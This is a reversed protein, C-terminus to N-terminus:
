SSNTSTNQAEKLAQKFREVMETGFTGAEKAYTGFEWPILEALYHDIGGRAKRFASEGTQWSYLPAQNLPIKTLEGRARRGKRPDHFARPEGRKDRKRHQEAFELAGEWGLKEFLRWAALDKLRDKSEKETGAETKPKYKDLRAKNEPLDLWKSIEQLLRKKTKSFDLPLLVQALTTNPIELVPYFKQRATARRM